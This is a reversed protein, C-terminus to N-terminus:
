LGRESAKESFACGRLLFRRNGRDGLFQGKVPPLTVMKTQNASIDIGIEKMVEVWGPNLVGPEIGASMAKLRDRALENLLAEAVQSRASNHICGFLVKTKVSM